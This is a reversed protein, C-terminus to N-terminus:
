PNQSDILGRRQLEEHTIEAIMAYGKENFHSDCNDFLQCPDEGALRQMIGEGYNLVDLDADVLSDLLPQYTWAGTDLFYELSLGTPIVTLVPAKGRALAEANFAQMIASTVQMGNSPHDEQYFPAYWPENLLWAQFHFHRFVNFISLSYPFTLRALGSDGGPVFYEYPLFDEPREMVSEFEEPQFTPIDIKKLTGDKEVMFRPKFSPSLPFKRGSAMLTRLQAVNRLINESLHNLMVIPAEDERNALFRLYAQDSGYGGVGFNGVRCGLLKSLVNGWAHESDVENSYTYSDGYISICNKYLEPDPFAPTYRSDSKDQIYDLEPMEKIRWGFEEDRDTLYHAYFESYTGQFNTPKGYLLGMDVFINGVIYASVEAIVFFIFCSVGYLATKRKM